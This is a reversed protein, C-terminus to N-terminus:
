RLALLMAPWFKKQYRGGTIASAHLMKVRFVSGDQQRARLNGITVNTDEM